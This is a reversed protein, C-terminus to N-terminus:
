YEVFLDAEKFLELLCDKLSQLDLEGVGTRAVVVIDVGGKLRPRNLRYVERLLRKIRNRKCSKGIKKSVSFGIRRYPNQTSLSYLLLYKNCILRGAEYVRKFDKSKSLRERKPFSFDREM